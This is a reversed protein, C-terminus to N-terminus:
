SAKNAHVDTNVRGDTVGGAHAHTHTHAEVRSRTHTHTHGPSARLAGGSQNVFPFPQKVSTM